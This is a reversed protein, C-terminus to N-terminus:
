ERGRREPGSGWNLDFSPYARAVDRWTRAEGQEPRKASRLWESGSVGVAFSLWGAAGVVM